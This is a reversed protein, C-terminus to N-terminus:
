QTVEIESIILENFFVNAIVFGNFVIVANATTNDTKINKLQINFLNNSCFFFKGNNGLSFSKKRKTKYKYFVGSEIDNGKQEIFFKIGLIDYRKIM